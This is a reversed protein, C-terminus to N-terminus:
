MAHHRSQGHRGVQQRDDGRHENGVRVGDPRHLAAGPHQDWYRPPRTASVDADVRVSPSTAVLMRAEASNQTRSAIAQRFTGVYTHPM